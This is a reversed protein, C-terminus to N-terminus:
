NVAQCDRCITKDGNVIFGVGTIAGIIGQVNLSPIRQAPNGTFGIEQIHSVALDAGMLLQRMDHAMTPAHYRQHRLSPFLGAIKFRRQTLGDFGFRANQTTGKGIVFFAILCKVAIAPLIPGFIEEVKGIQTKNELFIPANFYPIMTNTLKCVAEGECPHEFLGAEVVEAPPGQPEFGGRGRGGRFGGRDGACFDM